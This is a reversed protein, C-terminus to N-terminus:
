KAHSYHAAIACFLSLSSPPSIGVFTQIARMSVFFPVDHLRYQHDSFINNAERAQIKKTFPIQLWSDRSFVSDTLLTSLSLRDCSIISSNKMAM